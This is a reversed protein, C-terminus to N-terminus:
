GEIQWNLEAINKSKIAQHYQPQKHFIERLAYVVAADVGASGSPVNIKLIKDVIDGDVVDAIKGATYLAAIKRLESDELWKTSIIAAQPSKHFLLMASLRAIEQNAWHCSWREMTQLDINEAVYLAAIKAERSKHSALEEALENDPYYRMAIEKITPLSVGFNLYDAQGLERMTGSVAGNMQRRLAALINQMNSSMM